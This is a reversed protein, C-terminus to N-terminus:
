RFWSSIWEDHSWSQDRSSIEVFGEGAPRLVDQADAKPMLEFNNRKQHVDEGVMAISPVVAVNGENLRNSRDVTGSPMMAVVSLEGTFTPKGFL